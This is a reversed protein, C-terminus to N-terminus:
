HRHWDDGFSDHGSHPDPYHHNDGRRM